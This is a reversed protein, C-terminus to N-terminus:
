VLADHVVFALELGLKTAVPLAIIAAYAGVIVGGIGYALGMGVTAASAIEYGLFPAAILSSEVMTERLGTRFTNDNGGAVLANEFQTLERMNVVKSSLDSSLDRFTINAM